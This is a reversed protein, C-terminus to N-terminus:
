EVDVGAEVLSERLPGRAVAAAAGIPTIVSWEPVPEGCNPCVRVVRDRDRQVDWEEVDADVGSWGCDCRLAINPLEFSRGVWSSESM